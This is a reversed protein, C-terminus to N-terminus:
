MKQCINIIQSDFYSYRSQYLGIMSHKGKEDLFSVKKQFVPHTDEWVNCQCVFEKPVPYLFQRRSALTPCKLFSNRQVPTMTPYLAETNQIPLLSTSDIHNLMVNCQCVFEKPVPYLFQRRSALTPCKLFSNRQVPTMTPYLAETNQIPLLSTSDIHNLLSSGKSMNCNALSRLGNTFYISKTLWRQQMRDIIATYMKSHPMQPNDQLSAPLPRTFLNNPATFFDHPFLTLYM